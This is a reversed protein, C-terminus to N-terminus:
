DEWVPKSKAAKRLGPLVKAPANMWAEIEHWKDAPIVFARREMMELEAAEVARRRVFDSLSTHNQAAAAELMQREAPSMRVSVIASAAEIKRSIKNM